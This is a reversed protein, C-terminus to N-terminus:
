SSLFYNPDNWIKVFNESRVNCIKSGFGVISYIAEIVQKMIFICEAEQVTNKM